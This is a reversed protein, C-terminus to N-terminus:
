NIVETKGKQEQRGKKMGKNKPTLNTKGEKSCNRGINLLRKSWRKYVPFGTFIFLLTLNFLFFLTLLGLDFSSMFLFLYIFLLIAKLTYIPFTKFGWHLITKRFLVYDERVPLRLPTRAEGSGSYTRYGGQSVSKEGTFPSYHAWKKPNHPTMLGCLKAKM